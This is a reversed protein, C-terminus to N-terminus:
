YLLIAGLIKNTSQDIIAKLIGKVSKQVQAKPIASTLLKVVKINYGSNKAERENMGVCSYPTSLFVSYPVNKRDSITYPKECSLQSWIIRSIHISYDVQLM